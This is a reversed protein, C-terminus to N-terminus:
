QLSLGSHEFSGIAKIEASVQPAYWSTINLEITRGQASVQIVNDRKWCPFAGAPTTITELGVVKRKIEGSEGSAFKLRYGHNMKDSWRGPEIVVPPTVRKIEGGNLSISEALEYIDGTAPDQWMYKAARISPILSSDTDAAATMILVSKGDLQGETLRTTVKGNQAILQMDHIGM